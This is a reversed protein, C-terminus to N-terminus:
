TTYSWGFYSDNSGAKEAVKRDHTVLFIITTHNDRNLSTFIDM